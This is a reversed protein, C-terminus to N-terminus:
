VCLQTVPRGTTNLKSDGCFWMLIDQKFLVVVVLANIISELVDPIVDCLIDYMTLTNLNDVRVDVQARQKFM